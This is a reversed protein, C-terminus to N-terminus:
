KVHTIAKVREQTPYGFVRGSANDIGSFTHTCGNLGVIPHSDKGSFKKKDIQWHAGIKGPVFPKSGPTSRLNLGGLACDLCNLQRFYKRIAAPTREAPLNTFVYPHTEDGVIRLM